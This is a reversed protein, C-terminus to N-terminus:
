HSQFYCLLLCVHALLYETHRIENAKQYEASKIIIIYPLTILMHKYCKFECYAFCDKRYYVFSM